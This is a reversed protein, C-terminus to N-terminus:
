INKLKEIIAQNRSLNEKKSNNVNINPPDGLRNKELSKQNLNRKELNENLKAKSLKHSKLFEEPTYKKMPHLIKPSDKDRSYNPSVKKLSSAYKEQNKKTPALVDPPKGINLIVNKDLFELTKEKELPDVLSADMNLRLNNLDPDFLFNYIKM